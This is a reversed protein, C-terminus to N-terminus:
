PVKRLATHVDPALKRMAANDGILAFVMSFDYWDVQCVSYCIILICCLM